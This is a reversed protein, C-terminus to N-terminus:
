DPNGTDVVETGDALAAWGSDFTFTSARGAPNQIRFVRTAGPEGAREVVYLWYAEGHQQACEFQTHTLTAPRSQFRGSMAKVEIWRAPQGDAGPETLDFGPNNPPTRKLGLERELILQIAEEELDMRQEHTLRDPDEEEEKPSVAIYTIFKRGGGSNTDQKTGRSGGGNGPRRYSEGGADASDSASDGPPLPPADEADGDGDILGARRLQSTLQEVSTLNLRALLDLVGPEFGAERALQDIIPPKFRIKTLIFPNPEWGTSEFVVERPRQLAGHEDPIWATENFLRVFYADFVATRDTFRKWRYEGHFAGVGRRDAVDCLAEWLLNVRKAKEDPAWNGMTALLPELGRLTHDRVAIEATIEETGNARRLGAKEENTLSSTVSTQVLYQPNGAAELLPRIRESHLFNKTDDIILVGPVSAFLKKMRETARYADGPCVFYHSGDGADVARIFKVERLASVLKQRQSTSDTAFAALVREVDSRYDSDPVDVHDQGYEPLINAIVDDM